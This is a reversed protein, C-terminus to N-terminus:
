NVGKKNLFEYLSNRMAEIAESTIEEEKGFRKSTHYLDLKEGEEVVCYITAISCSDRRTIISRPMKSPLSLQEEESLIRPM